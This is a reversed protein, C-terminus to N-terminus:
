KPGLRRILQFVSQTQLCTFLVLDRDVCAKRFNLEWLSPSLEMVHVSCFGQARPRDRVPLEIDLCPGDIDKCSITSGLEVM